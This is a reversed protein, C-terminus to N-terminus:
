DLRWALWFLFGLFWILYFGLPYIDLRQVSVRVTYDLSWAWPVLRISLITKRGATYMLIDVVRYLQQPRLVLVGLRFLLSFLALSMPDTFVIIFRLRQSLRFIRVMSRASRFAAYWAVGELLFVVVVVSGPSTVPNGRTRSPIDLVRLSPVIAGIPMVADTDTLGVLIEGSQWGVVVGSSGDCEMLSSRYLWCGRPLPCDGGRRYSFLHLMLLLGPLRPGTTGLIPENLERRGM